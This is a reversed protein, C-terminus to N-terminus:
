PLVTLVTRSSGHDSRAVIRYRGEDQPADVELRFAFDEGADLTGLEIPEGDAVSRLTLEIDQIPHGEDFGDDEGVGFCGGTPPGGVDDCTDTWFEGVIAIKEGPSVKRSVLSITPGACDARAASSIWLPATIVAIAVLRVLDTRRGSM